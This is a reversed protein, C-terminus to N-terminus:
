RAFIPEIRLVGGTQGIDRGMAYAAADIQDSTEEPLGTWALLEAEFECRWSSEHRPLFVEGREMRTILGAARTVKDRGGTAVARLPLQRGLMDVAAQGLKENEILMESPQWERHMQQIARCLGDFGVRQRWVHRLVRFRRLEGPPIEWIELVSWSAPKGRRERARDESTGAPDITAIRRAERDDYAALAQDHADHLTIRRDCQTYYRLWSERLLGEERVSWDGNMLRERLLPPLHLLSEVYERADVAPNDRIRAPVYAAGQKWYVDVTPDDGAQEPIFRERVWDHGLNGPNSASRMRLPAAIERTRRLRSFLFVYDDKPFETLEDFAIFQFESSGYRYKQSSDMLYGFRLTAPPGETPFTWCHDAERWRAGSGALWQHSRPILGGALRLRQTDRRLILAAYGPVRVYQLAAMLLAESKGGAAAGGYFAELCDLDLFQQQKPWARHPCYSPPSESPPSESPRPAITPGLTHSPLPGGGILQCM